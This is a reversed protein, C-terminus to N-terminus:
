PTTLCTDYTQSRIVADKLVPLPLSWYIYGQAIMDVYEKTPMGIYADQMVYYMVQNGHQDTFYQKIYYIPFGEFRDLAKECDDSIEWLAGPVSDGDCYVVTAHRQFILSHNELYHSRVPRAKPCRYHMGDINLNAGYAFYLKM